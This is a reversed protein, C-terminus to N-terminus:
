QDVKNHSHAHILVTATLMYIAIALHTSIMYKTSSSWLTCLAHLKVTVYM